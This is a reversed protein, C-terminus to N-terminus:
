NMNVSNIIKEEVDKLTKINQKKAIKTQKYIIIIMSLQNIQM